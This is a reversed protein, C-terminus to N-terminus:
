VGQRLLKELFGRGAALDGARDDGAEREVIIAGAFGGGALAALVMGLDVAGKGLPVEAGWDQRPRASWTADKAHMMSVHRAVAHAAEVPDEVGYLVLNAPDFNVSLFDRGLDKLVELLVASTEQGTELGVTLGAEHLADVARGVRELVGGYAADGPEPIFGAHTTVHRIGLAALARGTRRCHELREAFFGAPAFGGTARVAAISAYSEGAFAIMGAPVELGTRKLAATVAKLGAAELDAAQLFAFQVAKFGIRSATGLSQVTDPVGLSWLACGITRKAM